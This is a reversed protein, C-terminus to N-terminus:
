AGVPNAADIILTDIETTLSGWLDPRTQAQGMHNLGYKACLSMLDRTKLVGDKMGIAVKSQIAEFTLSQSDPPPAMTAGMPAPPVPAAHSAPPNVVDTNVPAGPVPAPAAGAGKLENHVQSILEEPVGRKRKWQGSNIKTKARSHIRGDWPVGDVDVDGMNQIPAAMPAPPNTRTPAAMPAPAANQVAPSKAQVTKQNGSLQDSMSLLLNGVRTLEASTLKVSFSISNEM